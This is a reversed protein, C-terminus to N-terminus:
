YERNAEKGERFKFGPTGSQVLCEKCVILVSKGHIFKLSVNSKVLLSKRGRVTRQSRSTKRGIHECTSRQVLWDSAVARNRVGSNEIQKDDKEIM